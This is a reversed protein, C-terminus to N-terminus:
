VDEKPPAKTMIPFSGFLNTSRIHTSKLTAWIITGSQKHNQIITHSGFFIGVPCSSLWTTLYTHINVELPCFSFFCLIHHNHHDNHFQFLMFHLLFHLLHGFQFLIFVLVCLPILPMNILFSFIFSPFSIFSPDHLKSPQSSGLHTTFAAVQLARCGCSLVLSSLM